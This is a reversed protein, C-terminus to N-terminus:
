EHGYEMQENEAKAMLDFFRRWCDAYSISGCHEECWNIGEAEDVKGIFDFADVDGFEYQCPVEFYKAILKIIHEADKSMRGDSYFRREQEFHKKLWDVRYTVYDKCRHKVTGKDFVIVEKDEYDERDQEDDEPPEPPDPIHGFKGCSFNGMDIVRYTSM